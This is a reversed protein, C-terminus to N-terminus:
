DETQFNPNRELSLPQYLNYIRRLEDTNFKANEGYTKRAYDQM